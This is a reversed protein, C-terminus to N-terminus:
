RRRRLGEFLPAAEPPRTANVYERIREVDDDTFVRWNNRDRAVEDIRGDLLCRKLTIPAVGVMRAVQSLRYKSV